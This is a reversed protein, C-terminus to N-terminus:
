NDNIDHDFTKVPGYRLGIFRRLLLWAILSTVAFALLMVPISASLWLALPGGVLLILGLVAAGIAFGLLVFSPLLVEGVALILAAAMWAWWEGWM